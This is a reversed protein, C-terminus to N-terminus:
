FVSTVLSQGHSHACSLFATMWSSSSFTELCDDLSALEASSMIVRTIARIKCVHRLLIASGSMEKCLKLLSFVSRSEGFLSQLLSGVRLVCPAMSLGRM